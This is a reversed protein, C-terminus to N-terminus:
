FQIKGASSCAGKIPCLACDQGTPTCVLAALDLLAYNRGSSMGVRNHGLSAVHSKVLKNRHNAKDVVRGSVRNAIRITNTDVLVEPIGWAFNRVAAAIYHGVGPLSLLDRSDKPVRGDFRSLIDRSTEIFRKSRNRLGLSRTAYEWDEGSSSVSEPSDFRSAIYPFSVAVAEARTRALLYETILVLWPDNIARWPLWHRGNSVHWRNLRAWYPEPILTTDEILSSEGDTGTNRRRGAVRAPNYHGM